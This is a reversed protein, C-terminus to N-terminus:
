RGADSLAFRGLDGDASQKVQMLAGAAPAHSEEGM